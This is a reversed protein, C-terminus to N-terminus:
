GRRASAAAPTEYQTGSVSRNLDFSTNGGRSVVRQELRALHTLGIRRRGDITPWRLRAGQWPRVEITDAVEEDSEHTYFGGLGAELSLWDKARWAVGGRLHLRLWEGILRSESMVQRYGLDFSTRLREKPEGYFDYDLWLQADTTELGEACVPLPAWLLALLVALATWASRDPNLTM